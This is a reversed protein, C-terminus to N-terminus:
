PPAENSLKSALKKRINEPMDLTELNWKESILVDELCQQMIKHSENTAEAILQHTKVSLASEGSNLCEDQYNFIRRLNAVQESVQSPCSCIYIYGESRIKEIQLDTFKFQLNM